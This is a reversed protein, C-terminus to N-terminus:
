NGTCIASLTNRVELPMATSKVKWQVYCEINPGYYILPLHLVQFFTANCIFSM